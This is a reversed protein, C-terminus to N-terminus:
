KELGRFAVADIATMLRDVTLGRVDPVWKGLWILMGTLLHVVLEPECQVISGDKMGQQLFKVIHGRLREGWAAIIKRQPAHLYSFDGFYLLPGNASSDDFMTRIFQRLKHAGSGGAAETAVLMHEFRELSHRHCAYALSLTDPFYHYLTADRLNLAAAIDVVTAQAFSRANIIETAVRVIEGRKQDSKASQSVQKTKKPADPAEPKKVTTKKTTTTMLTATEPPSPLIGEM